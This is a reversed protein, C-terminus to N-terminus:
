KRVRRKNNEILKNATNRFVEIGRKIIDQLRVKKNNYYAGWCYRHGQINMEMYLQFDALGGLGVYVTPNRKYLDFVYISVSNKSLWTWYNQKM